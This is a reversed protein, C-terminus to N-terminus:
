FNFPSTKLEVFTGDPTDKIQKAIYSSYDFLKEKKLSFFNDISFTGGIVIPKIPCLREGISIKGKTNEWEKVISFGSYYDIDTFLTNSFSNFDDFTEYAEATEINIFVIQNNKLFAFQNGFIDEGFVVNIELADKYYKQFLFTNYFIDSEIENPLVGYFHLSSQFIYGGNTQKLFYLYEKDAIIQEVKRYEDTDIALAKKGRLIEDCLKCNM